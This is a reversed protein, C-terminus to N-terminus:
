YIMNFQSIAGGAKDVHGCLSWAFAKLKMPLDSAIQRPLMSGKTGHSRLTSYSDNIYKTKLLCSESIHKWQLHSNNDIDQKELLIYIKLMKTLHENVNIM